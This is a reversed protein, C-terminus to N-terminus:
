MTVFDALLLKHLFYYYLINNDGTYNEWRCIRLSIKEAFNEWRYTFIMYRCKAMPQFYNFFGVHQQIKIDNTILVNIPIIGDKGTIGWSVYGNSNDMSPEVNAQCSLFHFRVQLCCHSLHSKNISQPRIPNKMASQNVCNSKLIIICTLTFINISRTEPPSSGLTNSISISKFKHISFFVGKQRKGKGKQYIFIDLDFGSYNM